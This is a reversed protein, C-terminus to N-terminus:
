NNNSIVIISSLIFSLLSLLTGSNGIIGARKVETSNPNVIIIDGPLIQYLDSELFSTNTLDINHVVKEGDNNRIVKVNKRDGTIKLDGAIGIAELINMNNKLFDYNGARAVDGLVTFSANLLKIDVTPSNFIKNSKLLLSIHKKLEVITKGKAYIKGISPYEINGETDILYGNLVISEKTSSNLVTNQDKNLLISSEPIEVGVDIKIIDDVRLQYTEFNNTYNILENAEQIYLINKKSSCSNCLFICIILMLAIRM